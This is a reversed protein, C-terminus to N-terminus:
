LIYMVFCVYVYPTRLYPYGMTGGLDNLGNTWKLKSVEPSKPKKMKPFRWTVYNSFFCAYSWDLERTKYLALSETVRTSDRSCGQGHCGCWRGHFAVQRCHFSHCGASTRHDSLAVGTSGLMMACMVLAVLWGQASRVRLRHDGFIFSLWLALSRGDKSFIYYTCTWYVIGVVWFFLKSIGEELFSSGGVVNTSCWTSRIATKMKPGFCPRTLRPSRFLPPTNGNKNISAWVWQKRAEIEIGMTWAKREPDQVFCLWNPDVNWVWTPTSYLLGGWSWLCIGM